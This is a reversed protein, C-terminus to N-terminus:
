REEGRSLAKEAAEKLVNVMTVGTQIFSIRGSDYGLQNFRDKLREIQKVCRRNGDRHRCADDCCVAVMVNEFSQLADVMMAMSVEGGCSLSEVETDMCSFAEGSAILASNECCFVKLRGPAAKKRYGKDMERFTIASGPCVATCVGCAKCLLDKVKMAKVSQDPDLASHPCVRYCTYCFACKEPDVYATKKQGPRELALIDSVLSPIIKQVDDGLAATDIFKVNRKLTTGQNLFWRSGSIRGGDLTRIRLASVFAALEPDPEGMCHICLPSDISLFVTGDHVNVTYIGDRESIDLTEYKIFTVGKQRANRYRHDFSHDSARSSRMLVAVQRKLSALHAVMELVQNEIHPATDEEQDMVFVMTDHPQLRSLNKEVTTKDTIHPNLKTDHLLIVPLEQSLAKLDAATEASVLELGADALALQFNDRYRSKGALVAKM